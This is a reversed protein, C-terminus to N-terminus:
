RVDRSHSVTNGGLNGRRQSGDPSSSVFRIQDVHGMRSAVKQIEGGFSFINFFPKREYNFLYM